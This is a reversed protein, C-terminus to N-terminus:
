GRRALIEHLVFMLVAFFVISVPVVELTGARQAIAGMISPLISFGFGAGAIQFGIANQAHAAGVYGPTRTTIVAFLPAQSFGLVALGIYGILPSPTLWLLVAGVIIALMCLRILLETQKFRSVIMSFAIRGITFAAWFVSTLNRAAEAELGRQQSYLDFVWVSPTAEVGAYTFFLLISLWIIPRRLSDRMSAREVPAADATVPADHRWQGRLAVCGLTMAVVLSGIVLYAVRWSQGGELVVNVLQPTITAGIGFFAHLWNMATVGHHQAFYNNLGADVIGTGVGVVLAAVIMGIWVPTFAYGLMGISMTAAGALMLQGYGMRKVMAGSNFSALMYGIMSSILLASVNDLPLGFETRIAAWAVGILGAILGLGAFLAYALTVLLTTSTRSRTLAATTM